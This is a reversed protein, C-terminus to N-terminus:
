GLRTYRAWGLWGLRTQRALGLETDTGLRARYGYWGPGTGTGPRAWDTM